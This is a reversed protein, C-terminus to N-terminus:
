RAAALACVVRFGFYDFRIEDTSRRASALSSRSSSVFSAGRLGNLRDGVYEWVNGGLDHIGHRNAKFSGVPATKAHGDDYGSLISWSKRKVSEDAYNGAEPPPPWQNGWPFEEKGVAADWEADTPLRYEQNPGLRGERRERDTLWRCFRQADAQNIGVVPHTPGQEFGPFEWKHGQKKWGDGWDSYIEAGVYSTEDAFVRFDQVRTEWICFLVNTGPVPVFKQGLSNEWPQDAAPKSVVVSPQKIPLDPKATASSKEGSTSEVALVVRFGVDSLRYDPTHFQRDKSVLLGPGSEYFSAGRLVRYSLNSDYWDECWEWVNGGLDHLGHRNASFSAVPSAREFSDVNLSQAYNGAAQPPPWGTGWPYVDSNTSRTRKDRPTGPGEKLGVAESWEADTPLRYSQDSGLKGERREKETLWACFAKADEWSVKVAPHTSGANASQWAHGTAAVFAAYDQERTEWICFLVNTGPVPVFKQGLSNEWPQGARPQQVSAVAPSEEKPQPLPGDPVLAVRLGTFEDSPDFAVYARAWSATSVPHDAWNGGRKTRAVGQSVFDTVTGGPYEGFKFDLCWEAVNGHMDHLGWANAQKQGVPQTSGNANNQNWGMADADGAHHGTTGARCAYEWQAETPLRYVYGAPLRGANREWATLMDCFEMAQEWTISEVPRAPAKFKSPNAGMLTQWQQQTVETRGLWFPKSITVQTVPKALNLDDDASDTGLRFTGAAIPLMELGLDAVILRQGPLVAPKEVARNAEDKQKKLREDKDLLEQAARRAEEQVPLMFGYRYILAAAAVAVMALGVWLVARESKGPRKDAPPGAPEPPSIASPVKVPAPKAPVSAPASLRAALEKASQPRAAADKALCAAIAQEWEPPVPDGEVGLEARRETIPPAVKSQVQVIVNGSYFPPKGTLLEYLTAGVAYIDDTVAPKEGMMQQPSMYVPTGSAGAQKSVRSVSDTISTAIGFDTIKLDGGDTIMLNAPKLDRHVVRAKTHAYHLAELLQEVWPRLEAVPFVRGPRELKLAALSAGKVYEMAIAATRKDSVFDHIRVIHPHTLDLNRRTERKLDAVAEADLAVVEPLFKLAVDRDLEEDRALWVVGMGGRGLIRALKYRGLVKQGPLFGKITNGLDLEDM